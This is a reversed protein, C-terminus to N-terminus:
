EKEIKKEFHVGCKENIVMILATKVKDSKMDSGVKTHFTAEAETLTDYPYISMGAVSKDGDVIEILFYKKM